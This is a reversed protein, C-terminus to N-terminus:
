LQTVEASILLGEIPRFEYADMYPSITQLSLLLPTPVALEYTPKGSLQSDAVWYSTTGALLCRQVLVVEM